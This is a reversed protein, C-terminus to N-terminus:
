FDEVPRLIEVAVTFPVTIRKLKLKSFNIVEGSVLQTNPIFLINGDDTKLKTSHFTISRIVGRSNDNVKIYDGVWFDSSFMLRFGSLFNNIDDKFILVTAVAVLSFSTLFQSFAINFIPLISGLTGVAVVTRGLADVGLTFNDQEHVPLQSRGRYTSVVLFRVLGTLLSLSLFVILILLWSDTLFSTTFDGVHIFIAVGLLLSTFLLWAKRQVSVHFDRLLFIDFLTQLM